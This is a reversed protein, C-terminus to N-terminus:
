NINETNFGVFTDASPMSARVTVALSAKGFVNICLLLDLERIVYTTTVMLLFATIM